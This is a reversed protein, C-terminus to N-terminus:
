QAEREEQVAENMWTELRDFLRERDFHIEAYRRGSAGLREREAVSLAALRTVNAALGEPDGAPCVLGAGAEEIIRAGEGDLMAVIPRGCALYSQLKGPVTLAFIPERKLSVLMADAAAFLYPMTEAPQQDLFHVREELGRNRVENKAWAAMRGDGVILWHIDAREKLSEAATLVAPFDQAAGINGAFMVKFGVPLSHVNVLSQADVARYWAEVWNPFYLLRTEPVGYHIVKPVFARSQLLVRSCRAYVWRVLWGAARLVMPSGVTGTASLSDPWLDLVWFLIPVRFRWRAFAAPIGVTIPSPEFVLIVDFPGRLRFMAAWSGCLVFSLYNLALQLSSGRGRPLLPVRVVRAGVYDEQWPGRWSYGLPFRGSPYNPLGTLITVAHGRGILGAVLDNIRFNEPWFYQSVVLVNM